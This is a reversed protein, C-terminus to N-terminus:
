WRRQTKIKLNTILDMNIMHQVSCLHLTVTVIFLEGRVASIFPYMERGNSRSLVRRILSDSISVM